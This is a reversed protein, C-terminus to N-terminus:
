FSNSSLDLIISSAVVFTPIDNKQNKLKIIMSTKLFIYSKRERKGGNDMTSTM